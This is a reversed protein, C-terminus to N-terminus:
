STKPTKFNVRYIKIVSFLMNCILNWLQMLAIFGSAIVRDTESDDPTGIEFCEQKGSHPDGFDLSAQKVGTKFQM